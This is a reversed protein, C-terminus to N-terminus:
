DEATALEKELIEQLIIAHNHQKTRAAYLLTVDDYNQVYKLLETLLPNSKLESTYDASFKEWKEADHNFWRRLDASPAIDKMWVDIKCNDKRIGRPWLRDILVRFGDEPTDPDYIRKIKLM